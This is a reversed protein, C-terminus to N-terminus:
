LNPPYKQASNNWTEDLHDYFAQKDKIGAALKIVPDNPSHGEFLMGSQLDKVSSGVRFEEFNFLKPMSLYVAPLLDWLYFEFNGTYLGFAILWQFL